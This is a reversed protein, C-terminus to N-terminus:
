HIGAALGILALLSVIDPLFALIVLWRIWKWKSPAFNALVVCLILAVIGFIWLYGLWSNGSKMARAMGIAGGIVCAAAIISALGGVFTIMLSRQDDRSLPWLSREVPPPAPAETSPAPQQENDEMVM